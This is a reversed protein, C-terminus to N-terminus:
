AVRAMYSAQEPQMPTAKTAKKFVEAFGKFFFTYPYHLTQYVMCQDSFQCIEEIQHAYLKGTLSVSLFHIHTTCRKICWVNSVLNASKKLKTRM